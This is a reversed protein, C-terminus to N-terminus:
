QGYLDHSTQEVLWSAAHIEDGHVLLHDCDFSWRSLKNELELQEFESLGFAIAFSHRACPQVPVSQLNAPMGGLGRLDRKARARLGEPALDLDVPKGNNVNRLICEAFAQLIPVGLNLVLECTGIAALVRRRYTANTWHRVGSLAQSIVVQYNRVFKFKNPSYEVVQSRCFIVSHLSTVRNEIKLSMGYTLFVDQIDSLSAAENSEVIVLVDDGDDLCDWKSVASNEFYSLLMMLMLLCNGAATNMDGSMRRGRAKYRLGLNSFCKNHLQWSLLTRFFPDSNSGLYVSHELELLELSVHKDFRSADLSLVVPSDFADMKSVLLQARAPSNLGKAINRSRPVGKSACDLQYLREEIPHLYSALVVCYRSDRFQIARPDPDRKAHPNMREQKVFMKIGANVKTIGSRIYDQLAKEYRKRKAGTYRRPMAELENPTTYGVERKLL